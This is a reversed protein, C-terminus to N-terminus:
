GECKMIFSFVKLFENRENRHVTFSVDKLAESGDYEKCVSVLEIIKENM